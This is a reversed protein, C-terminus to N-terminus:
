KHIYNFQMLGLSIFANIVAQELEKRRNHNLAFDLYGSSLTPLNYDGTLIIKCGKYKNVINNVDLLHKNYLKWNSSSPIYVCGVILTENGFKIKLFM